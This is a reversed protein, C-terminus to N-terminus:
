YNKVKKIYDQCQANTLSFLHSYLRKAYNHRIVLYDLGYEDTDDKVMPFIKDFQVKRGDPSEIVSSQTYYISSGLQSIKYGGEFNYGELPYLGEKIEKLNHREVYPNKHKDKIQIQIPTM